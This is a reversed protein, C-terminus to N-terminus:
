EESGIEELEKNDKSKTLKSTCFGCRTADIDITNKCYPCQKTTVKQIEEVSNESKHRAKDIQRVVLFLTFSIIFFNLMSNLLTGYEFVIAGAEKAKAISEYTKGNLAIFLTSLDVRNTLFSVVPMITSSVLTNVINTFASGIVVGIALDIINGKIAFNKYADMTRKMGAEAVKRKEDINKEINKVSSKKM